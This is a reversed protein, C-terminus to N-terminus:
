MSDDGPGFGCANGYRGGATVPANVDSANESARVSRQRLGGALPALGAKFASAFGQPFSPSRALCFPRRHHNATNTPCKTTGSPPVRRHRYVGLLGLYVCEGCGRCGGGARGVGGPGEYGLILRKAM